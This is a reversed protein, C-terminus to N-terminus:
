KRNPVLWVTGATVALTVAEKVTLDGAIGVSALVALVGGALIPVLAKRITALYDTLNSVQGVAKDIATTKAM